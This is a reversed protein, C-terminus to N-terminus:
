KYRRACDLGKLRSLTIVLDSVSVDQVPDPIIYNYYVNGQKNTHFSLAVLETHSPTPYKKFKEEWDKAVVEHHDQYRGCNLTWEDWEAYDEIPKHKYDTTVLSAGWQNSFEWRILESNAFRIQTHVCEPFIEAYYKLLILDKDPVIPM